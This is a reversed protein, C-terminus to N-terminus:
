LTQLTTFYYQKCKGSYIIYGYKFFFIIDPLLSHQSITYQYNHLTSKEYTSILGSNACKRDYVFSMNPKNSNQCLIKKENKLKKQQLYSETNKNIHMVMPWQDHSQSTNSFYSKINFYLYRHMHKYNNWLIM